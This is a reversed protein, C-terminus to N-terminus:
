KKSVTLGLTKVCYDHMVIAAAVSVNLSRVTGTQFIEVIDTCKDIIESPLGTGEHGFCLLYNLNSDWEFSELSVAGPVNDLAIIRDYHTFIESLEEVFRIHKFSTYFETGVSSRRDFKKRGYLLVEKAGFANSSRIINGTNNDYELNVLLISYNMRSIINQEKIYETTYWKFKDIVNRQANEEYPLTGGKFGFSGGQAIDRQRKHM